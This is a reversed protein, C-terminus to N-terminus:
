NQFYFAIDLLFVCSGGVHDTVGFVVENYNYVIDGNEGTRLNMESSECCSHKRNLLLTNPWDLAGQQCDSSDSEFFKKWFPRLLQEGSCGCWM